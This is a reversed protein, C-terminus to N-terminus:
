LTFLTYRLREGNYERQRRFFRDVDEELKIREAHSLRTIKSEQTIGLSNFSTGVSIGASETLWWRDHIPSKGSSALGVVLVETDPPEQDSLRRWERRFVEEPNSISKQHLHKQSTLISVRCTPNVANLLKLVELDEPGFYEDCITLYSTAEQELWSRLFSMVETRDGAGFLIVGDDGSTNPQLRARRGTALTRMTIRGALEAGLVTAEFLPRLHTLAQDTKAFRVTANEIIWALIPYAESLPLRAAVEALRRTRDPAVTEIRGANLAGLLSWATRAYAEAEQSDDIDPGSKATMAKKMELSRLHRRAAARAPDTDAISALSAALEPDLRYAIDILKRQQAGAEHDEAELTAGMALRLYKKALGPESDVAYFALSEYRDIRDLAVPIDKISTAVEEFIQSRRDAERGPMAAAVMTMVLARDALNPIRRAADLHRQWSESRAQRIRDIQAESAVHFGDHQIFRPNPFKAKAISVLRETIDTRQQQSFRNRYRQATLTDAITIIGHYVYVDIDILNLLGCIDVLDDHTVDFGQGPPTEYPESPIQKRLLYLHIQRYAEDRNVGPLKGIIELATARHAVYLAPASLVTAETRARGDKDSIAELLPKLRQSVIEQCDDSRRHSHFHLAVRAWLVAREANAPVQDVLDTLAQIDVQSDLKRPLLGKFAGIALRVASLYAEMMPEADLRIDEQLQQTEALHRHAHELSLPALMTVLTYGLNVKRWGTDIAQWASHLRDLLQSVLGEYQEPYARKLFRYALAYGRCREHADQVATMLDIMQIARSTQSDLSEDIQALRDMVKLLARDRVLHNEFASFATQVVALNLEGTPARMLASVLDLLAADRRPEVNLERTLNFAMQPKVRGIARIVGKTARYHDASGALLHSLSLQLQTEAETHLGELRELEHTPDMTNLARVIWALCETKMELGELELVYLYLEVIKNRAADFAYHMESEALLLQLRM